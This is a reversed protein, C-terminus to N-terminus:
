IDKNVYLKNSNKLRQPSNTFSNFSLSRNYKNLLLAKQFTNFILKNRGMLKCRYTGRALEFCELIASHNAKESLWKM